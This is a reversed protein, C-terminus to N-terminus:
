LYCYIPLWIFGTLAGYKTRPAYCFSNDAGDNPARLPLLRFLLCGIFITIIKLKNKMCVGSMLFGLHGARIIDYEFNKEEIIKIGLKTGNKLKSGAEEGAVM